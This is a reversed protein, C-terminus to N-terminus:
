FGAGGGNAVKRSVSLAFNGVALGDVVGIYLARVAGHRRHLCSAGLVIHPQQGGVVQAADHAHPIGAARQELLVAVARPPQAGAARGAGAQPAAERPVLVEGLEAEDIHLCPEVVRM